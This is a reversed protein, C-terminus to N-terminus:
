PVSAHKLALDSDLSCDGLSFLECAPHIDTLIMQHTKGFGSMSRFVGFPGSVTTDGHCWTTASNVWSSGTCTLSLAQTIVKLRVLCFFPSPFTFPDKFAKCCTAILGHSFGM